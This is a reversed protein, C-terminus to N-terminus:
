FKAFGNEAKGTQEPIFILYEKDNSASAADAANACPGRGISM